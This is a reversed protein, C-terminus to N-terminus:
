SEEPREAVILLGSASKAGVGLAEIQADYQFSMQLFHRYLEAKKLISLLTKRPLLRALTGTAAVRKITFGTAIIEDVLERPAYAHFPPFIFRSFYPIRCEFNELVTPHDWDGTELFKKSYKLSSSWRLENEIVVPLQGFRNVVSIVLTKRTVRALELLAKGHAPYAYSIPADLAIGLDFSQDEFGSLDRINGSVFDPTKLGERDILRRAESLMRESFELHTVLCGRQALGISYRGYGGGADIVRIDPQIFPELELWVLDTHIRKEPNRDRQKEKAVKANWYRRSLAERDM